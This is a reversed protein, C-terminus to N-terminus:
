PACYLDLQQRADEFGATPSQMDAATSVADAVASASKAVDRAVTTITPDTATTGALVDAGRQVSEATAPGGALLADVEGVLARAGDCVVAADTAQQTQAPVLTTPTGSRTLMPWIIGVAAIAVGIAIVTRWSRAKSSPAMAPPLEGDRLRIQTWRWGNWYREQGPHDPDPHWGVETSWDTGDPAAAPPPSGGELALPSGCQACFRPDGDPVPTGCRTCATM